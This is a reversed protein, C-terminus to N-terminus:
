RKTRTVLGASAMLMLGLLFLTLASTTSVPQAPSSVSPTNTLTCNIADGAAPTVRIPLTTLGSVNTPGTNSCSVAQSYNALTSTSGSAMAENLVYNAGPVAAFNYAMSTVATGAGTTTTAVAPANTGTGSLAFQDAPAVRGTGGLAKQLSITTVVAANVILCSPQVGNVATSSLGSINDPGNTFAAPSGACSVNNQGAANTVPVTVTCVSAGTPVNVNSVTITGGGAPASTAAASNACTGGVNAPNAIRLGTPLTDVFSISAPPATNSATLTFSLTTVGGDAISANSFSKTLTPSAVLLSASAFNNSTDESGIAMFNAIVEINILTDQPVSSVLLGTYNLTIIGGVGGAIVANNVGVWCDPSPHTWAFNTGFGAPPTVGDTRYYTDAGCISLSISNAPIPDFGKNAFNTNLVSIQGVAITSPIHRADKIAPDANQAFATATLMCASLLAVLRSKINM